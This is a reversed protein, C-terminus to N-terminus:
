PNVIWMEHNRWGRELLDPIGNNNSDPGEFRSGPAITGSVTGRIITNVKFGITVNSRVTARGNSRSIRTFPARGGEAIADPDPLAWDGSPMRDDPQIFETDSVQEFAPEGSGPDDEIQRPNYPMM